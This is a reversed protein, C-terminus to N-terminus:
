RALRRRFPPLMEMRGLVARAARLIQAEPSSEPAGAALWFLVVLAVYAVAGIAVEVVWRLIM